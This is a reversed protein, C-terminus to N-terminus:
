RQTNNTSVHKAMCGGGQNLLRDWQVPTLRSFTPRAHSAPRATGVATITQLSLRVSTRSRETSSECVVQVSPSLTSPYADFADVFAPYLLVSAGLVDLQGQIVLLINRM